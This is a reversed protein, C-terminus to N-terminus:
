IPSSGVATFEISTDIKQCGMQIISSLGDGYGTCIRVLISIEINNKDLEVNIDM